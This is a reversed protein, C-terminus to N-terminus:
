TGSRCWLFEECNLDRGRDELTTAFKNITQRYKILSSRLCDANKGVVNQFFHKINTATCYGGKDLVLYSTADVHKLFCEFKNTYSINLHRDTKYENFVIWYEEKAKVKTVMKHHDYRRAQIGVPADKGANPEDLL